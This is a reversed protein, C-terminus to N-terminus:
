RTIIVSDNTLELTKNPGFFTNFEFKTLFLFTKMYKYTNTHTKNLISRKCHKLVYNM